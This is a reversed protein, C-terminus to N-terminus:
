RGTTARGSARQVRTAAFYSAAPGSLRSGRRRFTQAEDIAVQLQVVAGAEDKQVLPLLATTRNM